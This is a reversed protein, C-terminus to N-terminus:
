KSAETARQARAWDLVDDAWRGRTPAQDDLRDLLQLALIEAADQARPGLELLQDLSAAQDIAALADQALYEAIASATTIPTM